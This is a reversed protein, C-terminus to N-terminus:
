QLKYNLGTDQLRMRVDQLQHILADDINGAAQAQQILYDLKALIAELKQHEM